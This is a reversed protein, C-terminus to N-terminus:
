KNSKSYKFYKYIKSHYSKSSPLDVLFSALQSPFILSPNTTGLRLVLLSFPSDLPTQAGDDPIAPRPMVRCRSSNLHRLKWFWRQRRPAVYVQAACWHRLYLRQRPVWQLPFQYKGFILQYISDMIRKDVLAMIKIGYNYFKFQKVIYELVSCVIKGSMKVM